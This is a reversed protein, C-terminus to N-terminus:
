DLTKEMHVAVRDPMQERWTERYGLHAYIAQNRTFKENTYLWVRRRGETRARGEAFAVLRRGLGRDQLGPRVAVSWILLREPDLRLALSADLEAGEGLVWVEQTAFVEAWDAALPQPAYGLMPVYPGYAAAALRNLAPVDAAVARRLESTSPNEV